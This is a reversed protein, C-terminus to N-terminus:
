ALGCYLNGFGDCYNPLPWWDQFHFHCYMRRPMEAVVSQQQKWLPLLGVGFVAAVALGNRDTCQLGDNRQLGLGYLGLSGLIIIYKPFGAM